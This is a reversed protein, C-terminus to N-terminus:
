ERVRNAIASRMAQGERTGFLWDTKLDRRHDAGSWSARMPGQSAHQTTGLLLHGIEHAMARGLLQAVDAGAGQAMTRVRDTSVTAISGSGTEVDVLADGLTILYTRGEATGAPLIRAVLENSALPAQCM